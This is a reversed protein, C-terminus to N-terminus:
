THDHRFHQYGTTTLPYPQGQRECHVGQGAVMEGIVSAHIRGEAILMALDPMRAPPLTFCLEYDDGGALAWRLAQERDHFSRLAPSLPVADVDIVAGLDSAACIHGLDAVLGDSIDLAASALERLLRAEALRPEPRYFRQQLSARHEAAPSWRGDLMALAGAGDGLHHTVLVFDGVSAGDRRLALGPPVAGMVQLTLSLPGSTTDGGVLSCGFDRAASFLGRGFDRLWDEDADPLTLALTFWLPDAGMAALDSLNVRLAREAIDQPAADRPFHVGSVLTDVSIVLQQGAPPELLAGDDGIGLVVGPQPNESSDRQFFRRILEFEGM